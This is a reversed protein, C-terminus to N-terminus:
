KRSNLSFNKPCNKYLGEAETQDEPQTLVRQFFLQMRTYANDIPM